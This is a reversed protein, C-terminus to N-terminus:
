AAMCDSISSHNQSKARKSFLSEIEPLHIGELQQNHTLTDCTSQTDRTVM